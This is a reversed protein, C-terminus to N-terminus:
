TWDFFVGPFFYFDMLDTTRKSKYDKKNILLITTWKECYKRRQLIHLTDSNNCILTISDNATYWFFISFSGTNRSILERLFPRIWFTVIEFNLFLCWFFMLLKELTLHFKSEAGSTLVKFSGLLLKANQCSFDM